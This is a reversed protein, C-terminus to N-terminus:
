ERLVRLRLARILAQATRLSAFGLLTGTVNLIVDDIDAVRFPFGMMLSAALQTVEIALSVGLGLLLVRRWSDWGLRLVPVLMGLPMFAVVNGLLYRAAPWEFGLGISSRITEFPIPSLWPYPWGRFDTSGGPPLEFPPLPLPFFALGVLAALYMALVIRVFVTWPRARTRYGRWIITPVVVFLPLLVLGADVRANGPM